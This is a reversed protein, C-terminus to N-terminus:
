LNIKFYHMLKLTTNLLSKYTYRYRYHYDNQMIYIIYTQRHAYVPTHTYTPTYVYQLSCDYAKNYLRVKYTNCILVPRCDKRM